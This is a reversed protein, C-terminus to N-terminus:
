GRDRPSPSTYLLCSKNPNSFFYDFEEQNWRNKTNWYGPIIRKMTDFEKSSEPYHFYSICSVKRDIYGGWTAHMIRLDFLVADGLECEAPYYPISDIIEMAAQSTNHKEQTKFDEFPWWQRLESQWPDKHSGPLFRLAGTQATVPEYLPFQYKAGYGYINPSGDNYHWRTDNVYRYSHIEFGFSKEGFWQTVPKYFRPDEILSAYFPTDIKFTWKIEIDSPTSYDSSLGTHLPDRQFMPWDGKEPRASILTEPPDLFRASGFYSLAIWGVVLIFVFSGAISYILRKKKLSSREKALIDTSEENTILTGKSLRARCHSCHRSQAPNHLGCLGCIIIM